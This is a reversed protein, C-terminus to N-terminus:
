VNWTFTIMCYMPEKMQCLTKLTWGYQLTFWYKVGQERSYIGLLLFEPDYPSKINLKKLFHGATKWLPQVMKCEWWCHILSGTEGHGPWCKDSKRIIAMRTPTFHYRVTTKIQRERIVLLTCTHTSLQKLQTQSKTLPPSYGVLSRQGLSGGPLFVPPAQWAGRWPFRGLGPILSQM